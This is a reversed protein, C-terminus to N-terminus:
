FSIKLKKKDANKNCFYDNREKTNMNGVMEFETAM